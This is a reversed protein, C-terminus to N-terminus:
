ITRREHGRGGALWAALTRQSSEECLVRVSETARTLGTYFLNRHFDNNGVAVDTLIVIKAELGKFAHVTTFISQNGAQWPPRLNYGSNRLRMAASVEAARFSLIAIDSAKYGRATFDKLWSSLVESQQQDSEYFHIDYNQLSGGARLYDSYVGAGLGALRVATDGVIRYNRCNESLIWRVPRNPSQLLELSRLMSQRESLVQNEFDGFLAFAGRDIGGRLFQSICHWLQPRALVDQAEDVVVYDFLATAKFDPDTLREEIENPLDQDWFDRHPKSPIGIGTMSAMIRIARGAVLNPLSPGSQEIQQRIWDGILQNFCLLAVRRGRAAMRRALEIAILTKGTGAAGSVVLRENLLAIELIPKQQQRLAQEAEYERRRIEDEIGLRRRQVPVCFTVVQEIEDKTLKRELKTLRADEAISLRMRDKLAHCFAAGSSFARFARADILEWQQVSVNPPLDFRARPFICCHVIPINRFQPALEALRRYFSHRGDAAQKFPSRKITEPYWRKGDFSIEAHSKVEICVMGIDPVIVLFDIETRLSRNWPTLDLSHIAVWDDPGRALLNFVDREGPPTQEDVFSPVLRAM